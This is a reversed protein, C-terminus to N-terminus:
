SRKFIESNGRFWQDWEQPTLQKRPAQAPPRASPQQEPPPVKSSALQAKFYDRWLKREAKFTEDGFLKQRDAIPLATWSQAEAAFAEDGWLEKRQPLPTSQNFHSTDRGLVFRVREAVVEPEPSLGKADFAEMLEAFRRMALKSGFSGPEKPDFGPIKGSQALGLFQKELSDAAEQRMKESEVHAAEAEAKEKATRESSERDALQKKLAALEKQEATMQEPEIFRSYVRNTLLARQKELPLDSLLEDLASDDGNALRERLAAHRKKEAEAEERIKKAESARRESETVLKTTNKVVGLERLLQSRKKRGWGDGLDYEPDEPEPPKALSPSGNEPVDTAAFRGKDDRPRETGNSQGPQPAPAVNTNTPALAEPSTAGNTPAPAAPAPAAATATM